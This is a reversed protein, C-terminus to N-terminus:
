VHTDNSTPDLSWTSSPAIPALNPTRNTCVIPKWMISSIDRSETPKTTHWDSSSQSNEYIWVDSDNSTPGMYWIASPSIPQRNPIRITCMM